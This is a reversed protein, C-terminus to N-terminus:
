ISMMPPRSRVFFSNAANNASAPNVSVRTTGVLPGRLMMSPTRAYYVVDERRCISELFPVVGYGRLPTVALDWSSLRWSRGASSRRRELVGTWRRGGRILNMTDHGFASYTTFGGLIGVLLFTQADVGIFTRASFLESLFGICFCGLINVALTGFPFTAGQSLTKVVGSVLYRLVSGIFGGAGILLFKIM